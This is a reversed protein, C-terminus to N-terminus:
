GAALHRHGAFAAVDGLDVLPCSRCSAAMWCPTYRRGGTRETFPGQAPQSPASPEEPVVYARGGVGLGPDLNNHHNPQHGRPQDPPPHRSGRLGPDQRPRFARRSVYGLSTATLVVSTPLRSRFNSATTM